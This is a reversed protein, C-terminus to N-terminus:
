TCNMLPVRSMTKEVTSTIATHTRPRDVVGSWPPRTGNLRTGSAERRGLRGPLERTSSGPKWTAATVSALFMRKALTAAPPM